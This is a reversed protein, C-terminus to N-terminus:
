NKKLDKYNLKLIYYVIGGYILTSIFIILFTIFHTPNYLIINADTNSYPVYCKNANWEEYQINGFKKMWQSITSIFSNDRFGVMRPIKSISNAWFTTNISNKEIMTASNDSNYMMRLLAESLAWAISNAREIDPKTDTIRSLQDNGSTIAISNILRESYITQGFKEESLDAELQIGVQRLSDKLCLMFKAFSSERKLRQALHGKLTQSAISELSIAFEIKSSHSISFSSIFKDLGEYHCFQGDTIAFVFVWNNTIPFKNIIRMTELLAALSIGNINAGTKSTPVTSFTDLPTSIIAIRERDFTSSSNIIGVLNQLKIKKIQSNSTLSDTKAHSFETPLSKLGYTFYISSKHNFSLLFNELEITNVSHDPVNIIISASNNIHKSLINLNIDTLNVFIVSNSSSESDFKQIPGSIFSKTSGFQTNNTINTSFQILRNAHISQWSQIKFVLTFFILM